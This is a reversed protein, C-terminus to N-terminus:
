IRHSVFLTVNSMFHSMQLNTVDQLKFGCGCDIHILGSPKNLPYCTVKQDSSFENKELM